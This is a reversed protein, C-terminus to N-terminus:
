AYKAQVMEQLIAVTQRDAVGDIRSPRWHRQFACLIRRTTKADHGFVDLGYGLRLLLERTTEFDPEIARNEASDCADPWLGIGAEALRRWPFLEGPDRKRLPAVDSHGLVHWPAIHYRKVIDSALELLCAVQPEPFPRYGFEHGPNVLEIGISCGNVDREGEWAAVGAHWARHREDVLAYATADEDICYHASVKAAPDCLRELAEDASRMGTYHVILLSPRRGGPRQDRNPSPREVLKRKM